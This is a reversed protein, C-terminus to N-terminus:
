NGTLAYGNQPKYSVVNSVDVPLKSINALYPSEYQPTTEFFHHNYQNTPVTQLHVQSQNRTELSNNFADPQPALPRTTEEPHIFPSNINQYPKQGFQLQHITDTELQQQPNLNPLHCSQVSSQYMHRNRDGQSLNTVHSENNDRYSLNGDDLAYHQTIYDNRRKRELAVAETKQRYIREVEAPNRYQLNARKAQQVSQHKAIDTELNYKAVKQILDVTNEVKDKKVIKAEQRNFYIFLVFVVVSSIILLRGAWKTSDEDKKKNSRQRFQRQGINTGSFYAGKYIM